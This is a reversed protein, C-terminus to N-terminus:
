CATCKAVERRAWRDATILDDLTPAAVFDHVCLAQEVHRAIDLFGIAGERFLEVAAENAANLVAGATGGRRAVEHGLRLAPFRQPDPPSLTLQSLEFLNLRARPCDRRQPFTLAYQIPIRMDPRGLQAIFSGDCFEVFSHLISEPHVVVEIKDHDMDFLWRAEVIELSKNMMTASDISIKPGMDWTPHRLADEVTATDMKEESWTRFPGGSATLYIRRLESDRGARLAQFVASHESDVPIIEAGTQRALRMLLDGAIVLAEKNALAVRKGLEVARITARLGAAGVVASVVCDSDVEEVLAVLAGEGHFLSPRYSLGSRLDAAYETRVLALAEPRFRDAQEVLTQYNSGAALGVVEFEDALSALVDLTSCGVSGTSGLVIVRKKM